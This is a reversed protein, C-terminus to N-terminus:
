RLVIKNESIEVSECRGEITFKPSFHSYQSYVPCYIEIHKVTHRKRNVIVVGKEAKADYFVSFKM